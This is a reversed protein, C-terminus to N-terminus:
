NTLPQNYQPQDESVALVCAQGDFQIKDACITTIKIEGSKTRLPAVVNRTPGVRQFQGIMLASDGPNEWIQLEHATHGILDARSYGYRTEFAANVDLFRGESLTTISLPVPSSSFINRFKDEWIKRNTESEELAKKAAHLDNICKELESGYISACEYLRSNQIAVAAPIALLQARRLDERTFSDPQNHGVSLLGLTHQSAVLPVCLWSRLHTHGTFTQWDPEHKTDSVLVAQAVGLIRQVLPIDAADLTLPYTSRKKSTELRVKERAVFLRTDGELFWIRACDCSILDTLSQLLADLVFDMRLDQTLALTAKRLAESEAWANEALTLNEIVQDEAQKQGTIEQVTGVLRSISGESDRVPFGRVSVWRVEGNPRVIRFREDFEGSQSAQQLKGLVQPRDEPHIAEEYSLPDEQLSQCSRGTITEYAQNVYITKKTRADLMWFIEQINDAMQQFEHETTHLAGATQRHQHHLHLLFRGHVFIVTCTALLLVLLLLLSVELRQLKAGFVVLSLIVSVAAAIISLIRWALGPAAKSSPQSRLPGVSPMANGRLSVRKPGITRAQM